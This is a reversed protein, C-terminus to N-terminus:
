DDAAEVAKQGEAADRAVMNHKMALLTGVVRAADAPDVGALAEGQVERVLAEMRAITPAAKATLHLSWARRDGPDRRREVWGAAELRDVHRGMSVTDLELIEALAAQNIGQRPGLHVLVRWQARTLGMAQARRDFRQRLRRSVDHM